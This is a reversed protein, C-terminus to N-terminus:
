YEACTECWGSQIETCANFIILKHIQARCKLLVVRFSIFTISSSLSSPPPPLLSLCLPRWRWRHRQRQRRRQHVTQQECARMMICTFIALIKHTPKIVKNVCTFLPKLYWHFITCDGYITLKPTYPTAQRKGKTRGVERRGNERESVSLHTHTQTHAEHM